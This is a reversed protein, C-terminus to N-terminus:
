ETFRRGVIDATLADLGKLLEELGNKSQQNNVERLLDILKKLHIAHSTCASPRMFFEPEGTQGCIVCKLEFQNQKSPLSQGKAREYAEKL